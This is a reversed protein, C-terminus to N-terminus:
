LIQVRRGGRGGGKGVARAEFRTRGERHCRREEKGRRGRRAKRGRWGKGRRTKATNMDPTMEGIMTSEEEQRRRVEHKGQSVKVLPLWFWTEEGLRWMEKEFKTRQHKASTLEEDAREKISRGTEGVYCHSTMDNMVIYVMSERDERLVNEWDWGAIRFSKRVRKAWKDNTACALKKALKAKMIMLEWWEKRDRRGARRAWRQVDQILVILIKTRIHRESREELDLRRWAKDVWGKEEEMRHRAGEQSTARECRAWREWQRDDRERWHQASRNM